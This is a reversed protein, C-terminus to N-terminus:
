SLSIHFRQEQKRTAIPAQNFTTASLNSELIKAHHPKVWKQCYVQLEIWSIAYLLTTIVELIRRSLNLNSLSSFGINLM